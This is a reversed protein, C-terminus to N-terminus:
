NNDSFGFTLGTQSSSDGSFFIRHMKRPEDKPFATRTHLVRTNDTILVQREKLTFALYNAENEIFEKIERIAEQIHPDQSPTSTDDSRYRILIKGDERKFVPQCSKKGAREVCLADSAFLAETMIKNKALLYNYIAKGSILKTMGGTKAPIECLLATVHPPVDDYAGDTHFPHEANSTGLYGKFKESVAIEAIMDENARDHTLTSGFISKLCLLQERPEEKNKFELVLAGFKNFIGVIKEKFEEINKYSPIRLIISELNCNSDLTSQDAEIGVTGLEKNKYSKVINEPKDEM